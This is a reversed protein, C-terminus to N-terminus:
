RQWGPRRSAVEREADAVAAEALPLEWAQRARLRDRADDLDLYTSAIEALAARDVLDRRMRSQSCFEPGHDRRGICLYVDPRGPKTVPTMWSGCSCRLTGRTPLQASKM